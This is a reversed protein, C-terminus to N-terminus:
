QYGHPHAQHWGWASDIIASVNDYKPTWGLVEQARASSAVLRAPDGARREGIVRPIEQGTVEEATDVIEKVSFGQSSGLNFIQSPNGAVLYELAKIHADILDEVHIYDRICTGDPTPYDDGFITVHDRQGNPVELVIPILHTEPDHAEGISGDARAGSVNFYRLSVFKIGYVQDCWEIIQEMMRKSLGYPNVPDPTVDESIVEADVDGYVAATSSFIIRKVDHAMMAQLLTIMGTVNNDFYMLPKHVSEGVLSSAAFHFVAEFDGDRFVGELFDKDRIDGEIFQAQPHVAAKFGTLLNDVVTVDYGQDILQAVGHSGVYGAGGVVLVKM